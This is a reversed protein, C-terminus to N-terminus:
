GAHRPRRFPLAELQKPRKKEKRAKIHKVIARFVGDLSRPIPLIYTWVFDLAVRM